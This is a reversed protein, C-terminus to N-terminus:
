KKLRYISLTDDNKAVVIWTANGVALTQIDRCQGEVWFNSESPDIANFAGNGDGLMLAGYSADYRGLSPQVDYCNGVALIDRFGDQNVDKAIMGYIPAFQALLPLDHLTFEGDGLNEAWASTLTVTKHKIAKRLKDSAFVEELQSSAFSSYEPFRKRLAVMQNVLEDKSHYTYRRGQRYYTMIPDLVDDEDFDYVM